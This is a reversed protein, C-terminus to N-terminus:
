SPHSVFRGMRARVREQVVADPAESRRLTSVVAHQMGRLRNRLDRGAKGTMRESLHGVHVAKDSVLARRRAGQAPDFLYMLGAGVGIGTVVQSKM